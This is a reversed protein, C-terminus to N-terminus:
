ILAVHRRRGVGGIMSLAGEAKDERRVGVGKKCIEWEEEEKYRALYVCLVEALNTRYTASDLFSDVCGIDISKLYKRRVVM